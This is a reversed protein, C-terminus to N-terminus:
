RFPWIGRTRKSGAVSPQPELALPAHAEVLPSAGPLKGALGRLERTAQRDPITLVAPRGNKAAEDFFVDYSIVADPDRGIISTAQRTDLGAPTTRNLAILLRQRELIGLSTLVTLYDATSKLAMLEPATVLCITGALDMCALNLPSFSPTTDLILFDTSERMREIMQEVMPISVLEAQEPSSTATVVRVGSSHREMFEALVHPELDAIAASDLQALVRSPTVDMLLTANPFELNLDLLAVRYAGMTTLAAACNVALTTTGVGGKAHAFMIIAARTAAPEEAPAAQARRLLTEVKAALLVMEIPKPLYEDAGAEYGALVQEM